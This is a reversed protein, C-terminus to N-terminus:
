KITINKGLYFDIVKVRFIYDFKNRTETARAIDLSTRANTYDAQNALGQGFRTEMWQFSRESAERSEVSAQWAALAARADACAREVEQTLQNATQLRVMEANEVGITARKLNTETAFGNFIPLTLSFFLSQNINDRMQDEFPKVSFDDANYLEQPFSLVIDNSGIVTGIPVSLLDPSGTLVQAAGSYGTGYSYSASLRPYRAGRAIQEGLQASMLATEAAKIEPFTSLASKVVADVQDMLPSLDLESEAPVRLDFTSRLGPELQMLQMLSLRALEYANRAAVETSRDNALQARMQDLNGEAIQGAAVMREMRSVQASSNLVNAEAIGLLERNVLVSLFASAVNLSLDNRAKEYNWKNTEIDAGAQRATNWQQFGSFLNVSTSIGLSNSRVRETAFQNTFPDIRQGWNYGHVAQANLSPLMGGLAATRNLDALEVNLESMRLGPNHNVAYSVCSDLGWGQGAAPAAFAVFFLVVLHLISNM